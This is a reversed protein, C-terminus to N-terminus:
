DKNRHIYLGKKSDSDFFIKGAGNPSIQFGCDKNDFSNAMSLFLKGLFELSESNGDIFIIKEEEWIKINIGKKSYIECIENTNM